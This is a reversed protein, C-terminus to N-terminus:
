KIISSEERYPGAALLPFRLSSLSHTCVWTESQSALGPWLHMLVWALVGKVMVVVHGVDAWWTVHWMILKVILLCCKRARWCVNVCGNECKDSRVESFCRKVCKLLCHFGQLKDTNVACEKTSSANALTILTFAASQMVNAAGYKSESVTLSQDRLHFSVNHLLQVVQHQLREM